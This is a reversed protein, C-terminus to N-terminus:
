PNSLWMAQKFNVTEDNEGVNFNKVASSFAIRKGDAWFFKPRAVIAQFNRYEPEFRLTADNIKRFM